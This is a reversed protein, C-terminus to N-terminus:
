VCGCSPFCSSGVYCCVRDYGGACAGPYTKCAPCAGARSRPVLRDITADALRRMLRSM